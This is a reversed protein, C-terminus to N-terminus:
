QSLRNVNRVISLSVAAPLSQQSLPSALPMGQQQQQEPPLSETSVDLRLQVTGVARGGHVLDVTVDRAVEAGMTDSVPRPPAVAFVGQAYEVGETDWFRILAHRSTQPCVMSEFTYGTSISGGPSPRNGPPSASSTPNIAPSSVSFTYERRRLMPQISGELSSLDSHSATARNRALGRLSTTSLTTHLTTSSAVRRPTMGGREAVFPDESPLPYYVTFHGLSPLRRTSGFFPLGGGFIHLPSPSAFNFGSIHVRCIMLTHQQQSPIIGTNVSLRPQAGVVLSEPPEIQPVSVEFTATVPRSRSGTVADCMDYRMISMAQEMDSSISRILIRDSYTCNNLVTRPGAGEELDGMSSSKSIIRNIGLGGVGSGAAPTRMSGASSPAAAAPAPAASGKGAEKPLYAYVLDKISAHDLVAFPGKRWRHTPPFIIPMEYFGSFMAGTKIAQALGDHKAVWSWRIVGQNDKAIPRPDTTYYHHRYDYGTQRETWLASWDDESDARNGKGPPMLISELTDGRQLGELADTDYAPAGGSKKGTMILEVGENDFSGSVDSGTSLQRKSMSPPGALPLRTLMSQMDELHFLRRYGYSRWRQDQTAGTFEKDEVSSFWWDQERKCSQAVVKMLSEAPLDMQYNFGGMVISHHCQLYADGHNGDEFLRLDRLMRQAEKNRHNYDLNRGLYM